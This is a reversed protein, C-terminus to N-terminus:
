AAVPEAPDPAPRATHSWATDEDYLPHPRASLWSWDGAAAARGTAGARPRTAPRLLGACRGVRVARGPSAPVACRCRPNHVFRAHVTKKKGPGPVAALGPQSRYIAADPHRDFAATLEHAGVPRDGGLDRRDGRCAIPHDRRVRGGAAGAPDTGGSRARGRDRHDECRHRPRGARRLAAAIQARTLRAASAASLRELAASSKPVRATLM